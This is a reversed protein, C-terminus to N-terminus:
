QVKGYDCVFRFGILNGAKNFIPSEELVIIDAGYASYLRELAKNRDSSWITINM